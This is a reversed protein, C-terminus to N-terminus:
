FPLDDEKENSSNFNVQPAPQQSGTNPAQQQQSVAGVQNIKWAKVDTYWRGNFERSELDFSVNIQNGVVLISASNAVADSWITICVEKPYQGATEIIFSQKKWEGNKGQGTQVDLVQKVKGEINM